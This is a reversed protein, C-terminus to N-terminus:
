RYCYKNCSKTVAKANNIFAYLLNASIKASNAMAAYNKRGKAVILCIVYNRILPNINQLIKKVRQIARMPEGKKQM